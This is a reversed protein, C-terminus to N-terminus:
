RLKYIQSKLKRKRNESYYDEFDDSTKDSDSESTEETLRSKGQLRIESNRSEKTRRRHGPTAKDASTDAADSQKQAAKTSLDNIDQKSNRKFLKQLFSMNLADCIIWFIVSGTGIM